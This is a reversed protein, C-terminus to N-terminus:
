KEGIEDVGFFANADIATLDRGLLKLLLELADPCSDCLEIPAGAFLM